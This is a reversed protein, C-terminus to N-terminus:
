QERNIEGLNIIQVRRNRDDDPLHPYLLEFEGKGDIVLRERKVGRALLFKRVEAARMLSLRENYEPDGRGDTHGIIEFAYSQMQKHVLAKQLQTLQGEAEETLDSSDFAFEITLNISMGEPGRKERVLIARTDDDGILSDIIAVSSVAGDEQAHAFVALLLLGCLLTTKM